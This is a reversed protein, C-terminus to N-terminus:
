IGPLYGHWVDGTRAPLRHRAVEREGSEDFLCFEISTADPAVVAVNVGAEDPTVGLPEPRGEGPEPPMAPSTRSCNPMIGPPAGGPSMAACPMARSKRGPPPM